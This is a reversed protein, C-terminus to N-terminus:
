RSSIKRLKERIRSADKENTALYIARQWAMFAKEVKGFIQYVDGLHEYIESSNTGQRIARRFYKEAEEKNGLKFYVYGLSDLYSPNNPEIRVAKKIMELAEELKENREALFYGLNNLLIPNGPSKQIMERLIRESTVFDGAEHYAVSLLMKAIMRQQDNQSLELIKSAERIAEQNMGTQLYIQCSRVLVEIDVTDPTKKESEKNPSNTSAIANRSTNKIVAIAEEVRGLSALIEAEEQLYVAPFQTKKRVSYIYQLAEKRRGSEALLDIMEKEPFLNGAGLVKRAREILASADNYRGFHKYFYIMRGFVREAVEAKEGSDVPKDGVGYIRFIEELSNISSELNDAEFYVDSLKFYYPALQTKDKESDSLRKIISQLVRIASETKRTHIQAEVLVDVLSFNKPESLAAQELSSIAKSVLKADAFSFVERLLEVAERNEPQDVILRSLIEIAEELRNTKILANALKLSATESSLDALNGFVTKYFRAEVPSASALWQHLAEIRKEQNGEKEYFASLFAWAEANRPDLRTVELWEAKAKRAFEENYRGSNLGSRISYVGALIRRAGFNDPNAKVASQAYSIAEDYNPPQEYLALEALATYGEALNPDLEIAKLFAQRAQRALATVNSRFRSRGMQWFYRQGEMLKAYAQVKRQSTVEEQNEGRPTEGKLTKAVESPTQSFVVVSFTSFAIALCKRSVKKM